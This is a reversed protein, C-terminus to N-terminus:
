LTAGRFPGGLPLFPSPAGSVWALLVFSSSSLPHLYGKYNIGYPDVLLGEVTFYTYNGVYPNLLVELRGRWKRSLVRVRPTLVADRPHLHAGIANM